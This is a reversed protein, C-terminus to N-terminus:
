KGTGRVGHTTAQQGVREWSTVTRTSTANYMEKIITNVRKQEKDTIEAHKVKNWKVCKSEEEEKKAAALKAAAENYKGVDVGISKLTSELIEPSLKSLALAIQEM